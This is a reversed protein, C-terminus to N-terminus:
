KEEKGTPMQGNVRSAMLDEWKRICEVVFNRLVSREYKVSEPEATMREKSHRSLYGPYRVVTIGGNLLPFMSGITVIGVDDPQCSDQAMFAIFADPYRLVEESLETIQEIVKDRGETGEAPFSFTAKGCFKGEVSCVSTKVHIKVSFHNM